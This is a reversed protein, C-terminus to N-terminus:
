AIRGGGPRGSRLPSQTTPRGRGLRSRVVHLRRAGRVQDHSRLPDRGTGPAAARRREAAAPPRRAQERRTGAARDGQAAGARARSVTFPPGRLDSEPAILSAAIGLAITGIALRRSRASLLDPAVPQTVAPPVIREAPQWARFRAEPPAETLARQRLWRWAVALAPSMPGWWFELPDAHEPGLLLFCPVLGFNSPNFIHRGRFTILYKSLLAVASTAAFIWWGHMSWWDGHETGPVRLIFAVGNGTLLASAPWM